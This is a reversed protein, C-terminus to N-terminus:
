HQAARTRQLCQQPLKALHEPQLRHRQQLARRARDVHRVAPPVRGGPPDRGGLPVSRAVGRGLTRAVHRDAVVERQHQPAARQLGAVPPDDLREGRLGGDRQALLPQGLLGGLRQRQGLGVPHPRGQERRDAV